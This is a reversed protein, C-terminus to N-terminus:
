HQVPSEAYTFLQAYYMNCRFMKNERNKKIIGSFNQLLM